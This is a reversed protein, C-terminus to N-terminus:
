RRLRRARGDPRGVVLAHEFGVLRRRDRMAAPLAAEEFRRFFFVDVDRQRLDAAGGGVQAPQRELQGLRGVDHRQRVDREVAQEFARLDVGAGHQQLSAPRRRLLM